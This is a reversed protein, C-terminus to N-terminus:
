FLISIMIIMIKLVGSVKLSYFIFLNNLVMNMHYFMKYFFGLFMYIIFNYTFHKYMDCVSFNNFKFYIRGDFNRFNTEFNSITNIGLQLATPPFLICFIFKAAYNISNQFVVIFFFYMLVYILLTVLM